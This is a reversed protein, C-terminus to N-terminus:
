NLAQLRERLRPDLPHAESLRGTVAAVFDEDPLEDEANAARVLTAGDRAEVTVADDHETVAVRSFAVRWALRGTREEPSVPADMDDAHTAAESALHFAQLGAPYPGVSTTITGDRGRARLRRRTDHAMTQWTALVADTPRDAQTAISWENYGDFGAVGAREVEEFLSALTDDLCAQNYREAGVMHALMDRVTWGVCRTPRRWDDAGLSSFFGDLRRYEADLVDFPDIDRLERDDVPVPM